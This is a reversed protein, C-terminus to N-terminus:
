PEYPVKGRAHLDAKGLSRGGAASIATYYLGELSLTHWWAVVSPLQYSEAYRSPTVSNLRVRPGPIALRRYPYSGVPVLSPGSV